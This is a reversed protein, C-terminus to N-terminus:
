CPKYFGTICDALTLIMNRTDFKNPEQMRSRRQGKFVYKGVVNTLQIFLFLWERFSIAKSLHKLKWIEKRKEKKMSSHTTSSLRNM